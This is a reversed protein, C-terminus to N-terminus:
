SPQVALALPAAPAAHAALKMRALEPWAQVACFPACQHQSDSRTGVHV